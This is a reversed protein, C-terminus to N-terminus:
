ALYYLFDAAKGRLAPNFAERLLSSNKVLQEFFSANVNSIQRQLIEEV